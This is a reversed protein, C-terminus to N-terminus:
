EQQDQPSAKRIRQRICIALFALAFLGCFITYIRDIQVQSTVGDLTDTTTPDNPLYVITISSGPSTDSSFHNICFTSTHAQGKQDTFQVSINTSSGGKGCSNAEENTIVGQTRIGHQFLLADPSAATAGFALLFFFLFFLLLLVPGWHPRRKSRDM